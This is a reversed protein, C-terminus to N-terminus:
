GAGVISRLGAPVASADGSFKPKIPVLGYEKEVAKRQASLLFSVLAEAGSRDEANNLLTITYDAYKYVPTLSVTPLHAKKAEVVYFFGADLQGAQLRALMSTEEFIPFNALAKKLKPDRLKKAAADIAEVTLKGKPDAKPETRGVLIGHETIIEYWPKGAALQKGFKTKPNYGLVLDSSTFTSYWSVWDGNAAGELEQDASAAASVFVDAARVKGKIAAADENSGGGFGEFPDGTARMFEPGVANEMIDVLSGAYIATVKAAAARVRPRRQTSAAAPSGTLAIITTAVALTLSVCGRPLLATRWRSAIKRV